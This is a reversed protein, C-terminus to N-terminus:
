TRLSATFDTLSIKPGEVEQFERRVEGGVKREGLGWSTSRKELAGKNEM